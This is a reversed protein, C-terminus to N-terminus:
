IESAKPFLQCKGDILLSYVLFRHENPLTHRDLLALLAHWVRQYEEVKNRIDEQSQLPPNPPQQSDNRPDPVV